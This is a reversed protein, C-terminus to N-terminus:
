AAAKGMDLLVSGVKHRSDVRRHASVVDELPMTSDIIPEISGDAVGRLLDAAGDSRGLSSGTVLARSPSLMQGLSARLLVLKGGSTLLRDADSAGLNGVTDLVLDYRETHASLPERTHDVVGNAGLRRVLAANAASTVGTVSAGRARAIQTAMLGIEGSAGNVLVRAGAAIGGRELFYVATTGGFLTAAAQQMSVDSPIPVCASARAVVYQAHTGAEMGKVGCVRDGVSVDTVQEGVGVVEGAFVAGLIKRRPRRVGLLLRGGAGTGPPFDAARQLTDGRTVPAAVVRVLVESPGPAPKPVEAVRVVEPPGYAEYVAALMILEEQSFPRVLDATSV